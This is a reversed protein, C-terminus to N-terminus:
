ELVGAIIVVGALSFPWALVSALLGTGFHRLPAIPVALLVLGAIPVGIFLVSVAEYFLPVGFAIMGLCVGVVSFLGVFSPITKQRVNEEAASM